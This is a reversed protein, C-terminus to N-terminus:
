VNARAVAIEELMWLTDIKFKECKCQSVNCEFYEMPIHLGWDEDAYWSHMLAQHQCECLEMGRAIKFYNYEKEPM